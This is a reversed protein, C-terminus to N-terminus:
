NWKKMSEIIRKYNARVESQSMARVEDPSFYERVTNSGAQGASRYANLQNIQEARKQLDIKKREYLAFAASLSNGKAVSQWVEDPIARIDQDPFIDTFDALEAELRRANELEARLAENETRLREIESIDESGTEAQQANLEEVETPQEDCVKEIDEVDDIKDDEHAISDEAADSADIENDEVANDISKNDDNYVGTEERIDSLNDDRKAKKWKIPRM